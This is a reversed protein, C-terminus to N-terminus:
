LPKYNDHCAKCHDSFEVSVDYAQMFDGANLLEVVRRSRDQYQQASLVADNAYGWGAFFDEIQKFAKELRGAREIADASDELSISAQMENLEFEVNEMLAEFDFDPVAADAALTVPAHLLVCLLVASLNRM